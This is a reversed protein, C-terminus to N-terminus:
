QTESYRSGLYKDRLDQTMYGHRSTEKRGSPVRKFLEPHIYPGVQEVFAEYSAGKTDLRYQLPERCDVAINSDINLKRLGAQLIAISEQTFGQCHFSFGKGENDTHDAKSGDGCFWFAVTVPTILSEIHPSVVKVNGKKGYLASETSFYPALEMLQPCTLTLFECMNKRTKLMKVPSDSATYEKLASSVFNMFGQRKTTQQMKFRAQTGNSNVELSADSLLLGLCMEFQFPSEALTLSSLASLYEKREMGQSPFSRKKGKAELSTLLRERERLVRERKSKLAHGAYNYIITDIKNNSERM